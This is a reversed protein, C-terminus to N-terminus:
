RSLSNGCALSSLSMQSLQFVVGRQYERLVRISLFAIIIVALLFGGAGFPIM